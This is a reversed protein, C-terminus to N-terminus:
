YDMTMREARVLLANEKDTGRRVINKYNLTTKAKAIPALELADSDLMALLARFLDMDGCAKAEAAANNIVECTAYVSENHTM